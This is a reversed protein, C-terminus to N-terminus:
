ACALTRRNRKFVYHLLVDEVDEKFMYRVANVELIAVTTKHSDAPGEGMTESEFIRGICDVLGIEVHEGLYMGFLRECVLLLDDASTLWDNLFFFFFGPGISALRPDESGFQRQHIAQAVDNPRHSNGTVYGLSLTFRLFQRGRIRDQLVNRDNVIESPEVIAFAEKGEGVM